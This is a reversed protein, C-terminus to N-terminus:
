ACLCMIPVASYSRASTNGLAAAAMSRSSKYIIPSALTQKQGLASM